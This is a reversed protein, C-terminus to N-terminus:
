GVTTTARCGTVQALKRSKRVKPPVYASASVTKRTKAASAKAHFIPKAKSPM